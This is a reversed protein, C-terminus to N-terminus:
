DTAKNYNRHLATDTRIFVTTKVIHIIMTRCIDIKATGHNSRNKCKELLKNVIYIHVIYALSYTQMCTKASYHMKFMLATSM